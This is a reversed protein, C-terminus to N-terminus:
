QNETKRKGGQQRPEPRKFPEATQAREWEWRDLQDSMPNLMEPNSAALDNEEAIDDSLNYLASRYKDTGPKYTRVYKWEGQRIASQRIYNM